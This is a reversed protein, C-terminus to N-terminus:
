RNVDQLFGQYRGHTVPVALVSLAGIDRSRVTKLEEVVVVPAKTTMMSSTCLGEEFIQSTRLNTEIKM